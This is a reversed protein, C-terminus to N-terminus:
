LSYIYVLSTLAIATLIGIILGLFVELRTHGLLEALKKDPFMHQKRIYDIIENLIRAQQGAARRVTAADFMIIIALGLSLVFVSSDFGEKLGLSCCLGSAMASHASPMGGVSVFYHFDLRKTSLYANIMKCIQAILWAIFASWFCENKFVPMIDFNM